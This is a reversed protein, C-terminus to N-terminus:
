YSVMKFMITLDTGPFQTQTYNMEECINKLIKDDKWYTLPHIEVILLKKQLDSYINADTKYIQQLLQRAEDAHNMIPRILNAMATEARYAIMKITDLFLKRQNIASTFKENEPLEAFYIKRPINKKFNKLKMIDAELCEITNKLEAKKELFKKKNNEKIPVEGIELTAFQAKKINLKSVMKKQKSELEKYQPNVIISTDNIKEKTYSILNDIGFNEMMYRFFNEQSWRAFMYLGILITSLMYNTTIISTQHGSEAKKRIERAWIKKKSGVNNLLICREAMEIEQIEGNPLKGKHVVFEQDDWKYKVNKNYTCIAIRSEWLDYFFDPSYCERDAVIMYRHLHENELLEQTSPQNPIDKDLQPIINEKIVQIMGSNITKNIVFFPQGTMDNVWYDTSGSMCLRLRSVFRKPMNTEEGYYINVHGDIYLVGSLEPHDDMWGKSLSGSWQKINVRECFLKIRERLTKVEPIRDLGLIKGLEGVPLYASQSLTKVRLLSLFALCLFINSISYYGSDPRFDDQYKLLGNTLLSPLALLVGGFSVDTSSKFEVPCPLLTQSSLFRDVTNVCGKGM